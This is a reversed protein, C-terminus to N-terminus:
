NHFIWAKVRPYEMKGRCNRTIGYFYVFSLKLIAKIVWFGNICQRELKWHNRSRIFSYSSFSLSCLVFPGPVSLPTWKDTAVNWIRAGPLPECLMLPSPRYPGGNSFCFVKQHAKPWEKVQTLYVYVWISAAELSNFFLSFLWLFPSAFSKSLTDQQGTHITGRAQM